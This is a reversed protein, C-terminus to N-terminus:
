ANEKEIPINKKKTVKTYHPAEMSNRLARIFFFNTWITDNEEKEVNGENEREKSAVLIMCM